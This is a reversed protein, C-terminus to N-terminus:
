LVEPQRPLAILKLGKGEGLFQLAVPEVYSETAVAHAAENLQWFVWLMQEKVNNRYVVGYRWKDDYIRQSVLSGIPFRSATM